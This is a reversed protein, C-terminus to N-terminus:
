SPIVVLLSHSDYWGSLVIIQFDVAIDFHSENNWQFRMVFTPPVAKCDVISTTKLSPSLCSECVMLKLM